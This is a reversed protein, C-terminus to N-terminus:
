ILAIIETRNNRQLREGTDDNFAASPVGAHNAAVQFCNEAGLVKKLTDNAFTIPTYYDNTGVYSITPITILSVNFFPDYPSLTVAKSFYESMHYAMYLAGQGGLSHGVVVINNTDINYEAIFYDLLAALESTTNTNHWYGGYRLQPCLVYANFGEFKWNNLVNLLGSNYFASESCGKEDNGHLWVVLPITEYKDANSPTYLGYRMFEEGKYYSWNFTINEDFITNSTKSKEITVSESYTNTEIPLITQGILVIVFLLIIIKKKM